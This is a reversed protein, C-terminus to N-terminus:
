LELAAVLEDVGEGSRACTAVVAIEPNVGRVDEALRAV